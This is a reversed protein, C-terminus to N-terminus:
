FGPFGEAFFPRIDVHFIQPACSFKAWIVDLFGCFYSFDFSSRKDGATKRTVDIM